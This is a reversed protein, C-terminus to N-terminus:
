LILGSHSQLQLLSRVRSYCERVKYGVAVFEYEFLQLYPIQIVNLRFIWFIVILKCLISPDLIRSSRDPPPHLSISRKWIRITPEVSQRGRLGGNVTLGLESVPPVSLYLSPKQLDHSWHVVFLLSQLLWLRLFSVVVNVWLHLHVTM